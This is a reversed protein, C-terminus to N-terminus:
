FYKTIGLALLYNEIDISYDLDVSVSENMYYAAGLSIGMNSSDEITKRRVFVDIELNDYLMTRIGIITIGGDVDKGDISNDKVEIEGNFFSVGLLFDTKDSMPAHGIVGFSTSSTDAYATTGSSNLDANGKSFGAVVVFNPRVAYSIDLSLGKGKVDESYGELDSSSKFYQASVFTYKLTGASVPTILGTLIVAILIQFYNKM